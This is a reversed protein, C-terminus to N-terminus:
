PLPSQSSCYIRAKNHMHQTSRVAPGRLGAVIVCNLTGALCYYRGCCGTRGGHSVLGVVVTVTGYGGGEPHQVATAVRAAALSDQRRRPGEHVFFILVKKSERTM